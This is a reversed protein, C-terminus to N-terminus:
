SRKWKRSKVECFADGSYESVAVGHSGQKGIKRGNEEAYIMKVGDGFENRVLDAFECCNPFLARVEKKDM